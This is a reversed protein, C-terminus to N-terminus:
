DLVGFSHFISFSCIWNGKFDMIGWSFGKRVAAVAEGVSFIENLGVLIRNGSADLLDCLQVNRAMRHGAFYGSRQSTSNLRSQVSTFYDYEGPQIIYNGTRTDMMASSLVGTEFDYGTVSCVGDRVSATSVILDEGLNIEFLKGRDAVWYRRNKEDQPNAGEIHAMDSNSSIAYIVEAGSLVKTGTKDILMNEGQQDRVVAFGAAFQSAELFQPEIVTMGAADIYGFLGNQAIAALGDCFPGAYEYQPQFVANGTLDAYGWLDDVMVPITEEGIYPTPDVRNVRVTTFSGDGGFFAATGDQLVFLGVGSAPDYSRMYSINELTDLPEANGERLASISYLKAERTHYDLIVFTGAAASGGVYNCSSSLELLPECTEADLVVAGKSLAADYNGFLLGSDNEDNQVYSFVFDTLLNGRLDGVASVSSAFANDESPQYRSLLIRDKSIRQIYSYEFPYIVEGTSAFVGGKEGEFAVLLDPEAGEVVASPTSVRTPAPTPSPTSSPLSAVIGSCSSLLLLVILLPLLKKV